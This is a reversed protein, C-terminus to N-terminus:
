FTLVISDQVAPSNRLRYGVYLRIENKDINEPSAQFEFQILELFPMWREVADIVSLRAGEITDPTLQDFLYEHIRCGFEPQHVREGRRTLILNIFNSKIQTLVDFSQEFYGTNGLQLPLTVGIANLAM